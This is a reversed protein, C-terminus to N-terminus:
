VSHVGGTTKVIQATNYCPLRCLSSMVMKHISMGKGYSNQLQEITTEDNAIAELQDYLIALVFMGFLSSELVLIVSHLMRSQKLSFDSSCEPCARVWSVVVLVIAYISLVGVYILFQIFYRQNQEGVCNNIWPCHHDM